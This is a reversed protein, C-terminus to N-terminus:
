MMLTIGVKFNELKMPPATETPWNMYKGRLEYIGYSLANKLIFSVVPTAAPSSKRVEKIFGDLIGQSASEIIESLAWYWFMHRPFVLVQEYGANIALNKIPRLKVGGEFHDGFRFADGFVDLAEYDRTGEVPMNKFKFKTWNIGQTHYFILGSYDSFKYGYGNSWSFGFRWSDFGVGEPNTKKEGFDESYNSVFAYNYDYKFVVDTNAVPRTNTHGLRVEVAYNDEFKGNFADEHYKPKTKLGYIVEITPSEREIFVKPKWFKFDWNWEDGFGFMSWDDEGTKTTDTTTASTETKTTDQQSFVPYNAVVGLFLMLGFIRFVAKM